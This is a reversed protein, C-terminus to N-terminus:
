LGDERLGPLIDLPWGYQVRGRRSNRVERQRVADMLGELLEVRDALEEFMAVLEDHDPPPFEPEEHSGTGDAFPLDRRTM